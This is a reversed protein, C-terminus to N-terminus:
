PQADLWTQWDPGRVIANPGPLMSGSTFSAPGAIAEVSVDSGAHAAFRRVLDVLNERSPGALDVDGATAGTAMDLLVANIESIAVPQIPVDWIKAVGDATNWSLMQGPFEHFQTARLVTTGPAHERMADEQVVKAVYYGYDPSRDAGVISLVVTRSVGAATAAAGVNKAVQVFFEAATEDAAPSQTVDIVAEVGRLAETLEDGGVLLDFGTKRALGVVEHGRELALAELQAGVLGTSGAIAIKM